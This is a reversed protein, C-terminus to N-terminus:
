VPVSTVVNDSNRLSYGLLALGTVASALAGVIWGNVSSTTEEAMYKINPNGAATAILKNRLHLTIVPPLTDKVFVNRHVKKGKKWDCDKNGAKDKCFYEIKYDGTEAGNKQNSLSGKPTGNGASHLRGAEDNNSCLYTKRKQTDDPFFGCSTPNACFRDIAAEKEAKNTYTAIDMGMSTCDNRQGVVLPSAAIKADTIPFYTKGSEGM